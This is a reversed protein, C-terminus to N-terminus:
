NPTNAAFRVSKTRKTAPQTATVSAEATRQRRRENRTPQPQQSILCDKPILREMHNARLYEHLKDVLRLGKWPEWTDKDEGYGAWRVKFELSNKLAPNGRHALIQEVYYEEVDRIAADKPDFSSADHMFPHIRHILVDVLKNTVLDLLTYRTGVNNVVRYPGKRYPMLKNPPGRGHVADPEHDILVYSGKKFHDVKHHTDFPHAMHRADKDRQTQEAIRLFKAQHSLMLDTVESIRKPDLGAETPTYPFMERHLNVSNGFLLDAPAVGISEMPTANMIRQVLPLCRSWEDTNIRNDFLFCRLHKLVEKNAREVLGNEEHSNPFSELKDSGILLSLEDWLDNRFQTGGDSLIQLPTGYRGVFPLLAVRAATEADVSPVAVLEIWRTFGDIIVVVYKNGFKDEKFPGMTDVQIREMPTYTSTTFRRTLIPTRIQSMKQCCPCNRVFQRVHERCKLWKGKDGFKRELMGCTRDVGHHGITGNHCKRIMDLKDKPIQFPTMKGDNSPVALVALAHAVPVRLQQYGEEKDSPQLSLLRSFSDAVENKVGAVHEIDFNYELLELKWRMVKPSAHEKIYTLNKHDTRLTFKIDRILPRLKKISYFIAFAEKEGTAWRLQTKDFAKSIFQIPHEVGDVLQYLYAGIGYDSADTYLFVPSRDVNDDLFWLKPCNAIALKMAEFAEIAEPTWEVKRSREYNIILRNLPVMLNSHNEVHDRFYNALGVFSKVLKATTPLPFDKVKDKKDQSFSLGTPDIVHGVYEIEDMGLRCKDPNLTVKYKQLRALVTELRDIFEKEDRGHVIIDDIYLEMIIHILGAFVVTALISQFYAPAGKLGMPVRNWEYLGAFCIFATLYKSNESLPAQYFGKTLDMVAFHKAKSNGIRRLTEKINPLPWGTAQTSDNLNRYDICFRWQDNPKPTLLVQSWHQARSVRILDAALMDATQRQIENQKATSVPRHSTRNKNHGWKLHDVDLEMPPILAPDSSLTRSFVSDYKSCVRHISEQLEPTGYVRYSKSTEQSHTNRAFPDWDDDDDDIELDDEDERGLLQSKNLISRKVESSNMALLHPLTDSVGVAGATSIGGVPLLRVHGMKEEVSALRGEPSHYRESPSFDAFIQNYTKFILDHRYIDVRGIIIDFDSDVISAELDVTEQCGTLENHFTFAIQVIGRCAFCVSSSCSCIFPVDCDRKKAGLHILMEGVETSVYNRDLAGTDVLCELERNILHTGSSITCTLLYDKRQPIKPAITNCYYTPQWQKRETRITDSTAPPQERLTAVAPATMSKCPKPKKSLQNSNGSGSGPRKSGADSHTQTPKWSPNAKSAYTQLCYKPPQDSAWAKGYKSEAWTLKPDSNFDPHDKNRCDQQVHSPKGCGRCLASASSTAATAKSKAGAHGGGGIKTGNNNNNNTTPRQQGRSGRGKDTATGKNGDTPNPHHDIGCGLELAPQLVSTHLLDMTELMRTFLIPVSNTPGLSPTDRTAAAVLAEMRSLTSSTSEPPHHRDMTAKLYLLFNKFASGTVANSKMLDDAKKNMAVLILKVLERQVPSGPTLEDSSLTRFTGAMYQFTDAVEVAKKRSELYSGNWFTTKAVEQAIFARAKASFLASNSDHVDKTSAGPILMLLKNFLKENDYDLWQDKPVQPFVVTSIRDRWAPDILSNRQEITLNNNLVCNQFPKIQNYFSTDWQEGFAIGTLRKLDTSMLTTITSPKPQATPTATTSTTTISPRGLSTLPPPPGAWSASQQWNPNTLLYDNVTGGTSKAISRSFVDQKLLQIWISELYLADNTGSKFMDEFRHTGRSGYFGQVHTSIPQVPDLFTSLLKGQAFDDLIHNADPPPSALQRFSHLGPRYKLTWPQDAFFKKEDLKFLMVVALVGFNSMEAIESNSSDHLGLTDAPVAAVADRARSAYICFIVRVQEPQILNLFKLIASASEKTASWTLYGGFIEYVLEINIFEDLQQLKAAVQDLVSGGEAFQEFPPDYLNKAADSALRNTASDFDRLYKRNEQWDVKHYQSYNDGCTMQQGGVIAKNGVVILTDSPVKYM